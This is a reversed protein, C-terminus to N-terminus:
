VRDDKEDADLDMGDRVGHRVRRLKVERRYSRRVNPTQDCRNRRVTIYFRASAFSSSQASKRHHVLAQSSLMASSCTTPMSTTCINDKVVVTVDQLSGSRHNPTESVYTLANINYNKTGLLQTSIKRGGLTALSGRTTLGM